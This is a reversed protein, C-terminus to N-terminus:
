HGEWGRGLRQKVAVGCSSVGCLSWQQLVGSATRRERLLLVVGEAVLLERHHGRGERRLEEVASHYDNHDLCAPRPYLPAQLAGEKSALRAAWGEPRTLPSSIKSM